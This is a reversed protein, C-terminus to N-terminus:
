TALRVNHCSLDLVHWLHNRPSYQNRNRNVQLCINGKGGRINGHIDLRVFLLPYWFFSTHIYPPIELSFHLCQGVLIQRLLDDCIHGQVLVLLKM